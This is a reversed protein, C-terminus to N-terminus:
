ERPTFPTPGPTNYSNRPPTLFSTQPVPSSASRQNRKRIVLSHVLLTLPDIGSALSLDISSSM